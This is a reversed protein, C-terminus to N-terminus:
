WLRQEYYQTECPFGHVGKQKSYRIMVVSTDIYKHSGKVKTKGIIRGIKVVGVVSGDPMKYLLGKGICSEIFSLTEKNNMGTFYSVDYKKQFEEDSMYSPKVHKAQKGPRLKDNIEIKEGTGVLVRNGNITRWNTLEIARM